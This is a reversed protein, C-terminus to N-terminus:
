WNEVEVAIGRSACLAVFARRHHDYARLLEAHAGRGIVHAPYERRVEVKGGRYEFSVSAHYPLRVSTRLPIHKAPDSTTLM